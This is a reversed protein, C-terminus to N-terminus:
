FEDSAPGQSATMVPNPFRSGSSLAVEPDNQLRTLFDGVVFLANHAGQGWWDSRFTIRKDNFGVWSGTVLEPHMLMFWGDAGEQTTGTKGAFDYDYFGYQSRMRIGTGYGQRIVDRLMDIVVIATEELLEISTEPEHEYLVTGYEDEIRTIVFPDQRKGLKALTSYASALDLLSVDSTGLALSRVAEMESKIGMGQAIQVVREPGIEGILQASITNLSRALAERLTYPENTSEGGSNQPAWYDQSGEIFYTYVSDIFEHEPSWGDQVAAAYLLPKMTSGAHRKAINVHDYREVSLDSGGVWVKVAGTSDIAVLGSELRTKAVKLSDTCSADSTLRRIAQESSLGEARLARYSPSERVFDRWIGRFASQHYAFRQCPDTHCADASYLDIEPGFDLRKSRAASWECDAVAQLKDLTVRVAEEAHQQMRSDITTYVKLGQAYVDYGEAEGWKELEIRVHEAAYPAFSDTTESTRLRTQTPRDRNAEYYEADLHGHRVMLRLVVNRRQHSNEPNRVPDYRTSAKLMAVVTAAELTDLATAPKGFYTTAVGDIGFANHRFPVTNLYMQIIESKAYRKELQVAAAMEQLKRRVSVSFGIQDRYLNRALQQTITSGGQQEFPLGLRGLITQTVASVTRFLDIGWHDWFRHDETSVLAHVVHPPISDYEVWTRNQRAYRGLEMGDATYAVTALPLAFNQRETDRLEPLADSRMFWGAYGLLVLVALLLGITPVALVRVAQRAPSRQKKTREGPYAKRSM